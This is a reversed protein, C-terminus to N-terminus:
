STLKGKGVEGFTDVRVVGEGAVEGVAGVVVALGELAVGAVDPDLDLLEGVVGRAGRRPRGVQEALLAGLPLHGDRGLQRRALVQKPVLDEAQVDGPRPHAGLEVRAAGLNPHCRTSARLQRSTNRQRPSIIRIIRTYTKDKFDPTQNQLYTALMYGLNQGLQPPDVLTLDLVRGRSSSDPALRRRIRVSFARSSAPRSLQNSLPFANSSPPM